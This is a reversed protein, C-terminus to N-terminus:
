WNNVGYDLEHVFSHEDNTDPNDSRGYSGVTEIEFEGAEADPPKVKFDALAGLPRVALALIAVTL